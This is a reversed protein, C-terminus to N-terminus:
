QPPLVRLKYNQNGAFASVGVIYTGPTLQFAIVETSSAGASLDLLNPDFLSSRKKNVSSTFLYLDLDGQGSTAELLLFFTGTTNVTIQYLDEIRDNFGGGFDVRLLSLDTSAAAASVEVPSTLKQAKKLKHNQEKEAVLQINATNFGNLIIDINSTIQGATVTVAVFESPIDTAAGSENSGNYFEQVPLPIQTGLPGIGSGGLANPNITQIEVLYEGPPLGQIRYTGAGFDLGTVASSATTLSDTASNSQEIPVGDPDFQIPVIPFAPTGVLPPYTGQDIRRAIVNIGSVPIDTAGAKILVRGQISGRTTQYSDTPYLNSLANKTDLDLSAIFFGSDEFQGGIQSGFPAGFIFPYLTETFPGYLDYASNPDFGPPFSAGDGDAAINGNIQAHDLPGAFHGFEHTFVGLFS